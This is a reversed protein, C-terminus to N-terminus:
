VRLHKYSCVKESNKETVDKKLFRRITRRDYNELVEDIGAEMENWLANIRSTINHPCKTDSTACWCVGKDSESM